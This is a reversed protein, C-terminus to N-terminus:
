LNKRAQDLRALRDAETTCTISTGPKLVLPLVACELEAGNCPSLQFRNVLKGDKFVQACKAF